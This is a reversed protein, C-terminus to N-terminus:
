RTPTKTQKASGKNMFTGSQERSSNEDGDGDTTEGLVATGGCTPPGIRYGYRQIRWAWSKPPSRPPSRDAASASFAFPVGPVIRLAQTPSLPANVKM